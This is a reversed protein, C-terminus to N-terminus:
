AKKLKNAERTAIMKAIAEPSRKGRGVGKSHHPKPLDEEYTTEVEKVIVGGQWHEELTSTCEGTQPHFTRTKVITINM